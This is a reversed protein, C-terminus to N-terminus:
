AIKEPFVIDDEEMWVYNINSGREGVILEPFWISKTDRKTDNKLNHQGILDAFAHLDEDSKIKVSLMYPAENHKDNFEPLGNWGYPDFGDDVGSLVFLDTELKPKKTAM